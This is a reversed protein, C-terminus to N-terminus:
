LAGLILGYLCFQTVHYGSDVMWLRLSRQSFAYNIGFSTTVFFVGVVFGAGFGNAATAKSGLFIEFMLAALFSGLFAFVLRLGPHAAKTDLDTGAERCRARKFLAGYWLWGLAFASVAALVIGLWNLDNPPM